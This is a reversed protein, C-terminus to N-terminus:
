PNDGAQPQKRALRGPGDYPSPQRSYPPASAKPLYGPRKGAPPLLRPHQGAVISKM